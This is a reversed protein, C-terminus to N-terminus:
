THSADPPDSRAFHICTLPQGPQGGTAGRPAIQEPPSLWSIQRGNQDVAGWEPSMDRPRVCRSSVTQGFSGAVAPAGRRIDASEKEVTTALLITRLVTLPDLPFGHGAKGWGCPQAVRGGKGAITAFRDDGSCVFAAPPRCGASEPRCRTALGGPFRFLADRLWPESAGHPEGTGGRPTRTHPAGWAGCTRGPVTPRVKVKRASRDRSPQASDTRLFLNGTSRLRQRLAAARCGRGQRRRDLIDQPQCAVVPPAHTTILRHATLGAM